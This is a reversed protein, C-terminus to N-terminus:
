DVLGRNQSCFRASLGRAGGGQVGRAAACHAGAARGQGGGGQLQDGADAAAGGLEEAAGAPAPLAASSLRRQRGCLRGQQTADVALGRCMSRLLALCLLCEQAPQGGGAHQVVSLPPLICHEEKRWRGGGWTGGAGGAGRRSSPRSTRRWRRAGRRASTPRPSCWPTPSRPGPPPPTFSPRAHPPSLCSVLEQWKKTCCTRGPRWLCRKKEPPLVSLATLVFSECVSCHKVCIETCCPIRRQRWKGGNVGLMAVRSPGLSARRSAALGGVQQWGAGAWRRTALGTQAPSTLTWPRSPPTWWCCCLWWRRASRAPRPRPLLSPSLMKDQRPLARGEQARRAQECVGQLRSHHRGSLQFGKLLSAGPGQVWRGRRLARQLGRGRM